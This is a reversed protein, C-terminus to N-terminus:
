RIGGIEMRMAIDAGVGDLGPFLNRRDVGMQLLHGLIIGKLEKPILIKAFGRTVDNDITTVQGGMEPRDDLPIFPMSVEGYPHHTFVSKQSPIRRDIAPPIMEVAKYSDINGIEEPLAMADPLIMYIAAHFDSKWNEVAFYAAVFPDRSWDLLRTPVGFHQAIIRDNSYSRPLTPLYPMGEKFFRSICDNEYRDFGEKLSIGGYPVRQRRYLSPLLKWEANGQGRFLHRSGAPENEIIELLKSLNPTKLTYQRM